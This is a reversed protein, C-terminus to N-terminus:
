APMTSFLNSFFNLIKSILDNSQVNKSSGTTKWEPPDCLYKTNASYIGQGTCNIGGGPGNPDAICCYNTGCETNNM